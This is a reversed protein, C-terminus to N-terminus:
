CKFDSKINRQNKAESYKGHLSYMYLILYQQRSKKKVTSFLLLHKNKLIAFSIASISFRKFHFFRRTDEHHERLGNGNTYNELKQEALIM